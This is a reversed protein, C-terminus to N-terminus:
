LVFTKAALIGLRVGLLGLFLSLAVNLFALWFAGGEILANTEYAFTSFTTFSGLFGVALLLRMNPSILLTESVLTMIFGLVLSGLSNVTLTGLPFYHSFRMVLGSVWYRAIAGCFGGMGVWVIKDM